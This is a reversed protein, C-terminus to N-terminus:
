PQYLSYIENETLQLKSFDTLFKETLEQETILHQCVKLGAHFMLSTASTILLVSFLAEITSQGHKTLLM